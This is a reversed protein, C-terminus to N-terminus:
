PVCTSLLRADASSLAARTLISQCAASTMSACASSSASSSVGSWPCGSGIARLTLTAPVASCKRYEPLDGRSGGVALQLVDRELEAALVRHDHEVVGVDVRGDRSTQLACQKMLM